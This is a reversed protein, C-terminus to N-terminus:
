WAKRSVDPVAVPHIRPLPGDANKWSVGMTKVVGGPDAM